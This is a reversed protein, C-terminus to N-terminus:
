DMRENPTPEFLSTTTKPSVTTEQCTKSTGKEKTITRTEALRDKEKERKAKPDTIKIIKIIEAINATEVTEAIEAEEVIEATKTGEKEESDQSLVIM